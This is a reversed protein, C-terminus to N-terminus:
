LHEGEFLAALPTRLHQESWQALEILHGHLLRDSTDAALAHVDERLPFSPTLRLLDLLSLHDLDRALM